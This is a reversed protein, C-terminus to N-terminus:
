IDEAVSLIEAFLHQHLPSMRAWLQEQHGDLHENLEENELNVIHRNQHMEKTVKSPQFSNQKQFNITACFDCLM